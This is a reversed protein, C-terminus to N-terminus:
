RSAGAESFFDLIVDTATFDATPGFMREVLRNSRTGPWTHGGGEVTWRQLAAGDRSCGQYRLISVSTPDGARGLRSRTPSQRCDLIRAWLELTQESSVVSGRSGFRAAVPGGGYPMLTDATGQIMLVSVGKEPSCSRVLDVSMSAIVPAIARFLDSAECGLRFSMMGGNSAGTAFIRERDIRARRQLDGLMARIFGVDDIGGAIESRGDNWNQDLADPALLVYDRGPASEAMGVRQALEVGNLMGGGGHLFVIVPCPQAEIRCRHPIIEGWSRSAGDHMLSRRDFEPQQAGAPACSALALAAIITFGLSRKM